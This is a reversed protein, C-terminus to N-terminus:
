QVRETRAFLLLLVAHTIINDDDSSDPEVVAPTRLDLPCKDQELSSSIELFRQFNSFLNSCM